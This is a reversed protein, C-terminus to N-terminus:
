DMISGSLSHLDTRRHCPQLLGNLPHRPNDAFDGSSGFFLTSADGLYALGDRLHIHRCSYLVSRQQVGYNSFESGKPFRDGAHVQGHRVAARPSKTPGNRPRTSGITVASFRSTWATQM